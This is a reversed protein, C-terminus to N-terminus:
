ATAWWRSRDVLRRYAAAVDPHVASLLIDDAAGHDADPDGAPIADLQKVADEDTGNTPMGEETVEAEPIERLRLIRGRFAEQLHGAVANRAAERRFEPRAACVAQVVKDALEDSALVVAVADADVVRRGESAPLVGIGAAVLVRAVTEANARDFHEWIGGDGENHLIAAIRAAHDVATM